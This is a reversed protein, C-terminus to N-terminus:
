KKRKQIFPVETNEFSVSFDTLVSLMKENKLKVVRPLNQLITLAEMLPIRHNLAEALLLNKEEFVCAEQLAKVAKIRDKYGTITVQITM